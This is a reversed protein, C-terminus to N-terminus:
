GDRPGPGRGGAPRRPAPPTATRQEGGPQGAAELVHRRATAYDEGHERMRARVARELQGRDV